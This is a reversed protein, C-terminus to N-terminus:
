VVSFSFFSGALTPISKFNRNTLNNLNKVDFPVTKHVARFTYNKIASAIFNNYDMFICIKKMGNCKKGM